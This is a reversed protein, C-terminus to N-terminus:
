PTVGLLVMSTKFNKITGFWRGCFKAKSICEKFESTTTSLKPPFIPKPTNILGADTIQIIGHQLSFILSEKVYPALNRSREPFDLKVSANAPKSIWTIFQTAISRPLKDRTPKHLILPLMIFPFVYPSGSKTKTSYEYVALAILLGCFAPNLLTAIEPSRNIWAKM